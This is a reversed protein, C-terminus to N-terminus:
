LYIFGSSWLITSDKLYEQKQTNSVKQNMAHKLAVIALVLAKLKLDM